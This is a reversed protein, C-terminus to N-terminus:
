SWDAGDEIAGTTQNNVFNGICCWEDLGTPYGDTNTFAIADVASIFNHVIAVHSQGVTNLIAIGTTLQNDSNPDSRTIVNDKILLQYDRTENAAAISIGTTVASIFNDKIEGFSSSAGDLQIGITPSPNGGFRCNNIKFYMCSGLELGITCATGSSCQLFCNHLRFGNSNSCLNIIASAANGIFYMNYIHCGTVATTVAHVGTIRPARGYTSGVGVIDCENPLVTLSETYGTGGDIYIRNRGNVNETLAHYTNSATIAAEITTFANEWSLGTTNNGLKNVFYTRGSIPLMGSELQIQILTDHLGGPGFGQEISKNIEM